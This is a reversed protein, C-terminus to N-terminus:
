GSRRRKRGVEKENWTAKMVSAAAAKAIWTTAAKANALNDFRSDHAEQSKIFSQLAYHTVM